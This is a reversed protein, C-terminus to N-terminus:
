AAVLQLSSGETKTKANINLKAKKVCSGFFQPKSIRGVFDGDFGHVGGHLYIYYISRASLHDVSGCYIIIIM